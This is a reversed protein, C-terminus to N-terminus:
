IVRREPVAYLVHIQFCVRLVSLIEFGQVDIDGWYYLTIDKLWFIQKLDYLAYGGGFIVITDRIQPLVM